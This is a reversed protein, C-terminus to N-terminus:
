NASPTGPKLVPGPATFKVLIATDIQPNQFTYYVTHPLARVADPNALYFADYRITTDFRLIEERHKAINFSTANKDGIVSISHDTPRGFIYLAQGKTIAAIKEGDKEAVINAQGRQEIVFWNFGIRLIAVAIFFHVVRFRPQRIMSFVVFGFALVLFLSRPLAHSVGKTLPLWPLLFCFLWALFTASLMVTDLIKKRRDGPETKENYVYALVIFLLPLVPLVYRPFIKPSLWYIIINVLFTVACFLVFPHSRTVARWDKRLLVLAFLMPPAYHYFLTLPFEAVHKFFDGLAHFFPTRKTSEIFLNNFLTGPTLGSRYFYLGYYSGVLLLFLGVGAFHAPHFLIRFRRTYTFYALLTLGHFGLTPFGKLMFGAAAVLWSLLFLRYYQEKEGFYFVLMFGLFTVWAYTIDILGLMSDYILIEGDIMMFLAAIRATREQLYRRTFWYVCCGGIFISIITPLRLAFENYGFLKFSAALIWNFLPPKNLYLEGNLTPVIYDGSFNMEMAVLARIGEDHGVNIPYFGIHSIYAYALLVVALGYWKWDSRSSVM